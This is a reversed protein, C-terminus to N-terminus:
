EKIEEYDADIIDDTKKVRKARVPRETASQYFQEWTKRIQRARSWSVAFLVVLLPLAIFWRMMLWAFIGLCVLPPIMLLIFKQLM